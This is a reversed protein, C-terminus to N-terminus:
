RGDGGEREAEKDSEKDAALDFAEPNSAIEDAISEVDEASAVKDLRRAEERILKLQAIPDVGCLESLSFFESLRVPAKTRKRIDRVRGYSLGGDTIRDIERNSLGASDIM